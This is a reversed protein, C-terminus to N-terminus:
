RLNRYKVDKKAPAIALWGDRVAQRYWKESLSYDAGFTGIGDRYFLSMVYEAEANGQFAADFIPKGWTYHENLYEKEDEDASPAKPHMLNCNALKRYYSLYFGPTISDPSVKAMDMLSMSEWEDRDVKKVSFEQNLAAFTDEDRSIYRLELGNHRAWFLFAICCKAFLISNRYEIFSENKVTKGEVLICGLYRGNREVAFSAIDEEKIEKSNYIYGISLNRAIQKSKSAPSILRFNYDNVKCEWSRVEDSYHSDPMQSLQDYALVGLNDRIELTLGKQVIEEKWSEPISDFHNRFYKLATYKWNRWKKQATLLRNALDKESIRQRLWKTYFRLNAYDKAEEDQSEMTERQFPDFFLRKWYDEKMTKGCFSHLHDFKQMLEEKEIGLEPLLMRLIIALPNQRYLSRLKDTPELHFARALPLFNEKQERPFMTYFDGDPCNKFYKRFFYINMDLPRHLFSQLFFAPREDKGLQDCGEKDRPLTLLKPTIGYIKTAEQQLGELVASLVPYPPNPCNKPPTDRLCLSTTSVNAYDLSPVAVFEGTTKDKEWTFIFSVRDCDLYVRGEDTCHRVRWRVDADSSPKRYDYHTQYVHNTLFVAIGEIHCGSATTLGDDAYAEIEEYAHHVECWAKRWNEGTHQHQYDVVPIMPVAAINEACFAPIKCERWTEQAQTKYFTKDKM